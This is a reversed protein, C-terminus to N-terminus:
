RLRPANVETQDSEEHGERTDEETESDAEDPDRGGGCGLGQVDASLRLAWIV